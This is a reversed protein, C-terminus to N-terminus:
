SEEKETIGLKKGLAKWYAKAIEFDDRNKIDVYGTDKLEFRALVEESLKGKTLITTIEQRRKRIPRREAKEREESVGLEKAIEESLKIGAKQALFVFVQAGKKATTPAMKYDGKLCNVIDQPKAKELDKVTDFLDAYAERLVKEFHDQFEEGELNLGIMKETAICDKDILGLFKLGNVVKSENGKSSIEHTRLYQVDVKDIKIRRALKLFDSYSKIAGFPPGVKATAQEVKLDSMNKKWIKIDSALM